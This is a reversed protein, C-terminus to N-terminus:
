EINVQVNYGPLEIDDNDLTEIVHRELEFACTFASEEFEQETMEITIIM